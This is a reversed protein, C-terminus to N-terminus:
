TVRSFEGDVKKAYDIYLRLSRQFQSFNTAALGSDDKNVAYQHM